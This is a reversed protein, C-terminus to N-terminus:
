NALFEEVSPFSDTTNNVEQAITDFNISNFDNVSNYTNTDESTKASDKAIIENMENLNQTIAEIEEANLSYDLLKEIFKLNDLYISTEARYIAYDNKNENFIKTEFEKINNRTKEILQVLSEKDMINVEIM